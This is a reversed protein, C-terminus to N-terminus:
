ETLEFKLLHNWGFTTGVYIHKDQVGACIPRKVGDMRSLKRWVRNQTDFVQLRHNNWDCVMLKGGSDVDSLIPCDFKGVEDGRGGTKYLYEGHLTYVLVCHTNCSSVYVHTSATCLKDLVCGDSYQPLEFQTDKLWSNHYRVFSHIEAQEYNLAYIKNHSTLCVDSFCDSSILNTYDGQHNLHHVGTNSDCVIMGTPTKLVGTIWKFQPHEIHKIKELDSNYFFIGSDYAGVWLEDNYVCLKSPVYNM